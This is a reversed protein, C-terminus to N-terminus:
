ESSVEVGGSTEVIVDIEALDEESLEEGSLYKGAIISLREQQKPDLNEAREKLKEQQEPTLSEFREQISEFEEQNLEARQERVVDRKEKLENFKEKREEKIEDIREKFQERLDENREKIEIKIRSKEEQLKEKAEQKEEESLNEWSERVTAKVEELTIDGSEYQTRIEELDLGSIHSYAKALNKMSHKVQLESIRERREEKFEEKKAEIKEKLKERREESIGKTYEEKFDHSLEVVQKKYDIYLYTLDSLTTTEIDVSNIEDLIREFESIIETLTASNVESDEPIETILTQANEVRAELRLTLQEWKLTAGEQTLFYERESEDLDVEESEVEVELVEEELDTTDVEITTDVDVTTNEEDAFAGIPTGLMLTALGVATIKKTNIKM